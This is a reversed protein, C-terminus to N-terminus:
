PSGASPRRGSSVSAPLPGFCDTCPRPYCGTAVALEDSSRPGERLLDAIGLMAAIHIAQSVPLGTLLHMITAASSQDNQEMAQVERNGFARAIARTAGSAGTLSAGNPPGDQTRAIGLISEGAARRRCVEHWRAVRCRAVRHAGGDQRRSPSGGGRRTTVGLSRRWHDLAGFPMSLRHLSALSMRRTQM